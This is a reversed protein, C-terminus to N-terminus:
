VIGQFAHDIAQALTDFNAIENKIKKKLNAWCKEIPNLDPSYPPRFILDCGAGNIIAATEPSKHFAANDMIITKGSGIEPLLFNSLWFNFLVGDMTGQYCIPAVLTKHILGAVFSERAFRKGSREGIVTQGRESWAHERSVFSDIGSEDVYVISEPNM